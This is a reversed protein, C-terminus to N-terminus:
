DPFPAVDCRRSDHARCQDNSGTQRQVHRWRLLRPYLAGVKLPVIETDGAARDYLRADLERRPHREALVPMRAFFDDVDEFARQLILDLSLRRRREFGALDQEDRGSRDVRRLVDAAAVPGLEGRIDDFFPLREDHHDLSLRTLYGSAVTHRKCMM